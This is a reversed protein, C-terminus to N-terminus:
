SGDRDRFVGQLPRNLNWGLSSELTRPSDSDDADISVIYGDPRVLIMTDRHRGCRELMSKQPDIWLNMGDPTRDALTTSPLIWHVVALGPFAAHFRSTCYAFKDLTSKEASSAVLLGAHLPGRVISLLHRSDGTRPDILVLDPLRDGPKLGHHFPRPESPVNLPSDPYHIDLESLARAMAHPIMPIKGAIGAATNRAFQVIPNRLTAMRTLVGANRLVMDGVASREETYSDLLHPKGIGKEVLAIKWALNFADQMGTNMGQGGAPSHIHAADGALFVRGQSYESVKREHIRFGALWFPDFLELGKPGREEVVRQIDALSPDPPHGTTRATGLDAIIRFRGGGMPFFALIGKEHWDIRLEDEHAMGRVHLDALMWDNPEADGTFEMGLAHRVTSHAGDCGILWHVRISEETGDPNRLVADVGNPDQTFETLEVGREVQVGTEALAEALLRETESQPIMLPKPFTTGELAFNVHVLERGGGHMRVGSALIGSALFREVVELRDLMELSRNWLVLAKSKDTPMANKDIIRCLMGQRRLALAMTLGVPGAGAILIPPANKMPIEVAEHVISSRSQKQRPNHCFSGGEEM